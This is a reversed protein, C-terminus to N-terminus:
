LGTPKVDGAQVIVVGSEEIQGRQHKTSAVKEIADRHENFRALHGGARASGRDIDDLAEHTVLVAVLSPGHLMAFRVGRVTNWAPNGVPSLSM